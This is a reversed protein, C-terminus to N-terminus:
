IIGPKVESNVGVEERGVTEVKERNRTGEGVMAADRNKNSETVGCTKGADM